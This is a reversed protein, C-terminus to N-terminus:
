KSKCSSREIRKLKQFYHRRQNNYIGKSRIKRTLNGHNYRVKKMLRLVNGNEVPLYTVSDMIERILHVGLGGPRVDKLDRPVIKEEQVKKGYDRLFIKLVNGEGIVKVKIKGIEDKLMQNEQRLYQLEKVMSCILIPSGYNVTEPEDTETYGVTVYRGANADYENVAEREYSVLRREVQEVEEAILGTQNVGFAPDKFDFDVVRLDYIWSTNSADRINTKDALRSSLYGVKGASDIHLDRYPSGVATSYVKDLYIEGDTNARLAQIDDGATIGVGDAGQMVFHDTLPSFGGEKLEGWCSDIDIRGAVQVAGEKVTVDAAFLYISLALVLILACAALKSRLIKEM